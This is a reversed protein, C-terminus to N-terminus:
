GGVRSWLQFIAGQYSDVFALEMYEPVKFLQLAAGGHVMCNYYTVFAKIWISSYVLGFQGIRGFRSRV